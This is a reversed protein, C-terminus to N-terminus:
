IVPAYKKMTASTWKLELNENLNMKAIKKKEVSKKEERKVKTYNIKKVKILTVRLFSCQACYISLFKILCARHSQIYHQNNLKVDNSIHMNYFHAWVLFASLEIIWFLTNHPRLCEHFIFLLLTQVSEFCNVTKM